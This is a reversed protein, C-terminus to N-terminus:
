AKAGLGGSEVLSAASLLRIGPRLHHDRVGPERHAYFLDMPDTIAYGTLALIAEDVVVLALEAGQVPEGDAGTVILDIETSEGPALSTEAPALEVDLVREATSLSFEHQGVAIAPRPPLATDEETRDGPDGPRAREASGVLVVHAQINPIWDRRLPIELTTSGGEITFRRQEALGHRRLTLLGEANEFPAQVLLRAVDGARYADRDPILLVEEIGVSDAAPMRAGGVWRILRSANRRGADDRTTATLHYQGGRETAFECRAQGDSGTMVRCRQPEDMTQEFRGGRWVHRVRAAEVVVPHDSLAQGDIDTTILDLVLPAGREVFYTDTKLGVYAQGPHVLFESGANWAQRNVDSVTASAEVLLPRPQPDFDLAVDIAHRGGGDTTGQHVVSSSAQGGQGGWSFWRPSEFGFSWDDHDPPAYHGPRALVQWRVPAGPLAGGAYYAAQVEVPVPQRGVYPGAPVRTTVEFEPTRFEEIAFSHSYSGNDLPAATVLTLDIRARGLNPTDPLEFALDFGGLGGVEARDQHLRNNRSDFVAFDIRSDDPLLALGGDPRREARRLWGKLHVREGPRYIGRDDFAQWLVRDNPDRRVWGSRASWYRGEPLLASDGGHEVLIWNASDALESEDPLAIDALGSENSTWQGEFAGVSVRAADLPKGSDLATAWVLLRQDDVSADIGIGTAQIWTMERQSYNPAQAGEVVAGPEFRVVLHGHGSEDLYQGLAISTRVPQDREAEIEVPGSFVREGPLELAPDRDETEQDRAEGMRRWDKRYLALFAPWDAATVRHIRANVTRYNTSFFELRPPSHPDLTTLQDVGFSLMPRASGVQFTFEREGTLRQGFGDVLASDLVVRYPTRGRKLGNIMLTNGWVQLDLGLVEPEISIREALDQDAGPSSSFEIRIADEPACVSRWGCRAERVQFPPYTRFSKMQAAATSKPGEASPADAALTVAIRQDSPLPESLKLALWHGPPLRDIAAQAPEDAALDAESAPAFALKRGDEDTVEVFEPLLATSIRQNFGLVLVPDLGVQEGQPFLNLFEVAPTAFRFSIPAELRTGDAARIEPTVDIRFETAMPLRAADPEFLLTRTGVWRWQGAVEPQLDIGEPRGALDDHGSVAVMPRDFTLSVQGAIDVDGEPSYRLLRLPGAAPEVSPLEREDVPPFEAQETQGTRPPPQSGPRLAFEQEDSAKAPLPELRALLAATQDADLARQAAPTSRQWDDEIAAGGQISGPFESLDPPPEIPEPWGEASVTEGNEDSGSQGM